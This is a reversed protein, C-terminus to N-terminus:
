AARVKASGTEPTKAKARARASDVLRRIRRLERKLEM